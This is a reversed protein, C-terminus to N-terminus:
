PIPISNSDITTTAGGAGTARERCFIRSGRDAAQVTYAIGTGVQTTGRFWAPTAITMPHDGFFQARTQLLLPFGVTTSGVIEPRGINTIVRQETGGGPLRFPFPGGVCAVPPRPQSDSGREYYHLVGDVPRCVKIRAKNTILSDIADRPYSKGNSAAYETEIGYPEWDASAAHQFQIHNDGGQDTAVWGYERMARFVIRMTNRLSTPVGSPWSAITSDIEADSIDLWFRTGQPIGQDLENGPYREGKTAPLSYYRYGSRRMVMSLAHYIKGQAIEQPTILMALYQIGCGRSQRFGSTKTRYDGAGGSGDANATVRNVRTASLTNSGSSYSCQFGNFEEGTVENIVIIQGDTGSPIVWSPNWPIQGSRYNGDGASVNASVTAQSSLYVPYTYDRSFFNCWSVGNGTQPSNGPGENGFWLVDRIYTENPHTGRGVIASISLNWEATTGYPRFHTRATVPTTNVSGTGDVAAVRGYYLAGGIPVTLRYPSTVANVDTWPGSASLGYGLRYSTPTGSLPPLWAYEITRDDIVTATLNRPATLTESPPPQTDVDEPELDWDGDAFADPVTAAVQEFELDWDTDGFGDPVTTGGTVNELSWDTDLFGSPVDIFESLEWDSDGFTGPVALNAPVTGSFDFTAPSNVGNDATVTGSYTRDESSPTFLYTWVGAGTNTMTQAVDDVLFSVTLSPSPNGAPTVQVTLTDNGLTASENTFSPAVLSAEVVISGADTDTGFENTAIATWAVVQDELSAIVEVSVLRSNIAVPTVSMGDITVTIEYEPANLVLVGIFVQNGDVQASSTITPLPNPQSIFEERALFSLTITTLANTLHLYVTSDEASSFDTPNDDTGFTAADAPNISDSWKATVPSASITTYGISAHNGIQGYVGLSDTSLGTIEASLLGGTVKLRPPSRMIVQQLLSFRDRHSM